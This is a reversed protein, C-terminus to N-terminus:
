TLTTGPALRFVPPLADLLSSVDVKKETGGYPIFAGDLRESCKGVQTSNDYPARAVFLPTGDTERGGEVPRANLNQLNLHGRDGVWHVARSDGVLVEYTNM